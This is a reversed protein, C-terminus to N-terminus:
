DRIQNNQIHKYEGSNKEVIFGTVAIEKLIERATESNIVPIVVWYEKGQKIM